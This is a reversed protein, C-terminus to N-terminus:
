AEARRGRPEHVQVREAPHDLRGALHVGLEHQRRAVGVDRPEALQRAVHAGAPQTGSWENSRVQVEIIWWTPPPVEMVPSAVPTVCRVIGSLASAHCTESCIMLRPSPTSAAVGSSMSASIIRVTSDSEDIREAAVSTLASISAMGVGASM